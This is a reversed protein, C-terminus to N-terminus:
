VYTFGTIYQNWFDYSDKYENYFAFYDDMHEEVFEEADDSGLPSEHYAFQYFFEFETIMSYTEKVTKYEDKFKNYHLISWELSKFEGDYKNLFDILDVVNSFDTFSKNFKNLISGEECYKLIYEVTCDKFYDILEEDHMESKKIFKVSDGFLEEGDYIIAYDDTNILDIGSKLSQSLIRAIDQKKLPTYHEYEFIGKLPFHNLDHLCLSTNQGNYISFVSGPVFGLKCSLKNYKELFEVESILDKVKLYETKIEDEM